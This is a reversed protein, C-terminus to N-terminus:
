WECNYCQKSEWMAAWIEPPSAAWQHLAKGPSDLFSAMKLTDSGAGRHQASQLQCGTRTVSNNCKGKRSDRTVGPFVECQSRTGRTGRRYSVSPWRYLPGWPLQLRERALARKSEGYHAMVPIELTYHPALHFIARRRDNQSQLTDVILARLHINQM